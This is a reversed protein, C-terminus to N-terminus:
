SSEDSSPGGKTLPPSGSPRKGLALGVGLLWGLILGALVVEGRGYVVPQGPLSAQSHLSFSLIPLIGRSLSAEQMLQGVAQDPSFSPNGSKCVWKPQSAGGAAAQLQCSAQYLEGQLNAARWAHGQATQLALLASAGWANAITVADEPRSSYVQLDWKPDFRELRIENRLDDLSMSQALGPPLRQIAGKLTDDALLLDQVRLFAQRSAEEPLPQTRAYDIGIDLSASAEYIPPRVVTVALGLLGGVVALAVVWIWRSMLQRFLLDVQIDQNM